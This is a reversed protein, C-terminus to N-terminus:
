LAQKLVIQATREVQAPHGGGQKHLRGGAQVVVEVAHLARHGEVHGVRPPVGLHDVGQGLPLAQGEVAVLERHPLPQVGVHVGDAPVLFQVIEM